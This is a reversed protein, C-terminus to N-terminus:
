PREHRQELIDVDPPGGRNAPRLHALAAALRRHARHSRSKITGIATGLREAIEAHTLGDFWALRVVERELPDLADVARRVEWAEWASDFSPGDSTADPGDAEAVFRGERRLVDIAENRAIQYLWPALPRSPDFSRRGTWAKVFTTQAADAARAPDGLISTAVAMVPGAFREYVARLADGSGDHLRRGIEADDDYM